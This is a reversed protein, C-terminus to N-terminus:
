KCQAKKASVRNKARLPKPSPQPPSETFRRERPGVYEEVEEPSASMLERLKQEETKPVHLDIDTATPKAPHEHEFRQAELKVWQTLADAIAELACVAREEHSLMENVSSEVDAM